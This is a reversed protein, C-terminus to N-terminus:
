WRPRDIRFQSTRSAVLWADNWAPRMLGERTHSAGFLLHAIEHAIVGGLLTGTRLHTREATEAVRDVFATAVVGPVYAFGLVQRGDGPTSRAVRVVLERDGLPMECPTDLAADARNCVTWRLAVGATALIRTAAAQAERTDASAGPVAVYLRADVALPWEAAPKPCIAEATPATGSRDGSVTVGCPRPSLPAHASRLFAFLALLLITHM